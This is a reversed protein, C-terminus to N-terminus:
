LIRPELQQVSRKDMGRRFHPRNADSCYFGRFGNVPVCGIPAILQYFQKLSQMSFTAYLTNYLAHQLFTHNVM